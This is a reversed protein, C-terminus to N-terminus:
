IRSLRECEETWQFGKWKKILQYFPRCRNPFKFIFQNLVALMGTLVQVEKPNSPSKLCEIASIQNPTM